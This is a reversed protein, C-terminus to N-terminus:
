YNIEGIEIEKRLSVNEIEIKSKLKRVKTEVIICYRETEEILSLRKQQLLAVVQEINVCKLILENGFDVCRM